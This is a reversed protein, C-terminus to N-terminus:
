KRGRKRNPQTKSYEAVARRILEAMSVREDLALYKLRMHTVEDLYIMTKKQM